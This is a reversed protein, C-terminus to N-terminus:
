QLIGRLHLKTLIPCQRIKNATKADDGWLPLYFYIFFYEAKRSFSLDATALAIAPCPSFVFIGDCVSAPTM